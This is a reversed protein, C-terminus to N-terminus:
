PNITSGGSAFPAVFGGVGVQGPSYAPAYGSMVPNGAASIGPTGPASSGYNGGTLYNIGQTIGQQVQPSSLAGGLANYAGQQGAGQLQGAALAANGVNSAGTTANTSQYAASNAGLQAIGQLQNFRNQQNAWYDTFQNQYAGQGATFGALKQGYINLANQLQQNYTQSAVGGAYDAAGRLQAGSVGLGRATASNQQAQLAQQLTFQYGPTQALGAMTPDWSFQPVQAATPQGSLDMPIGVAGPLQQAAIQGQTVFPDTRAINSQMQMLQLQQSQQAAKSATGAASSAGLANIGASGVAGAAGIAAATGAARLGM